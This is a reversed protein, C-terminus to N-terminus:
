QLINIYDRDHIFDGPVGLYAEYPMVFFDPFDRRGPDLVEVFPRGDATQRYGEVVVTHGGGGWWRITFIFPRKDCIQLTIEEWSLGQPDTSSPDYDIQSYKYRFDETKFVWHPWGRRICVKRSEDQELGTSVEYEKGVKCCHPQLTPTTKSDLEDKFVANVIDCQKIDPDGPAQDTARLYKIVSQASAAWCWYSTEQKDDSVGQLQCRTGVAPVEQSSLIYWPNEIAEEGPPEQILQGAGRMSVNVKACASLFLTALMILTVSIKGITRLFIMARLVPQPIPSLDRSLHVNGPPTM